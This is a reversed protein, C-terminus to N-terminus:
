VLTSGRPPAPAHVLAACTSVPLQTPASDQGVVANHTAPSETPRTAVDTSGSPPGEAQDARSTSTIPPFLQGAPRDHVAVPTDVSTLWPPSMTVVTSGVPGAGVHDIAATLWKLWMSVTAQGLVVNHTAPSEAPLTRVEVFGVPPAAAHDRAVTSGPVQIELIEHGDVASHTATSPVPPTSVEVFGVPPAPAHARVVTSADIDPGLCSQPTEHGVVVKQAATSPFPPTSVEDLGVPPAPAHVLSTM